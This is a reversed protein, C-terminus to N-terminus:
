ASHDSVSALEVHDLHWTLSSSFKPSGHSPRLDAHHHNGDLASLVQAKSKITPSPPEFAANDFAMTRKTSNDRYRKSRKPFDVETPEPQVHTPRKRSRNYRVPEVKQPNYRVPEVKLPLAVSTNEYPNHMPNPSGMPYAFPPPMTHPPAMTHPPPMTHPSAMPHPYYAPPPMFGPPSMFFDHPMFTMPYNNMSYPPPYKAHMGPYCEPSGPYMGPFPEPNGQYMGPFPEPNGPYMGPPPAPYRPQPAAYEPMMGPPLYGTVMSYTSSTHHHHAQMAARAYDSLPPTAAEIRPPSTGIAKTPSAKRQPPTRRHYKKFASNHSQIDREDEEDSKVKAKEAHRKSEGEKGHDKAGHQPEQYEEVDGDQETNEEMDPLVTFVSDESNMSDSDVPRPMEVIEEGDEPDSVVHIDVKVVDSPQPVRDMLQQDTLIRDLSTYDQPPHDISSSVLSTCRSCQSSPVLSSGAEISGAKMSTQDGAAAAPNSVPMVRNSGRHRHRRKKKKKRNTEEQESHSLSHSGHSQM